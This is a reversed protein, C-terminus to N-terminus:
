KKLKLANYIAILECGNDTMHHKFGYKMNSVPGEHQNHIYEFDATNEIDINTYFREMM